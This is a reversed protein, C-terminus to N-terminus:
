VRDWEASQPFSGATGDAGIVVPDLRGVSATSATRAASVKTRSAPGPTMQCMDTGPRCSRATDAPTPTKFVHPAFPTNSQLLRCWRAVIPNCASSKTSLPRSSASRIMAVPRSGASDGSSRHRSAGARVIGGAPRAGSASRHPERRRVGVVMGGSRARRASTVCRPQLTSLSGAQRRATGGHVVRFIDGAPASTAASAPVAPNQTARVSPVVRSPATSRATWVRGPTQPPTHRRRAAGGGWGGPAPQSRDQRPRAFPLSRPRRRRCEADTNRDLCPIRVTIAEVGIGVSVPQALQDEPPKRCPVSEASQGGIRALDRLHDLCGPRDHRPGSASSRHVPGGVLEVDGPSSRRLQFKMVKGTPNLPLSDVIRITRPVKFNAMHERCWAGLEDPDITQGPRPVVFAVGVEGLREDPIGVVAVQGVSPHGVM